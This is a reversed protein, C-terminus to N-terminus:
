SCFCDALMLKPSRRTGGAGAARRLKVGPGSAGV